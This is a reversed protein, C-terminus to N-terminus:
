RHCCPVELNTVISAVQFTIGGIWGETKGGLFYGRLVLPNISCLNVGMPFLGKTRRELEYM